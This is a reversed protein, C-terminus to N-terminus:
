DINIFNRYGSKRLISIFTAVQEESDGYVYYPTAYSRYAEFEESNFVSINTAGAVHCKNYDAPRRIDAIQVSYEEAIDAIKEPSLSTITELMGFESKWSVINAPLYGLCNHYNFTKILNIDYASEDVDSIIIYYDKYSEFIL